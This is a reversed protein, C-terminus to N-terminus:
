AVAELHGGITKPDPSGNQMRLALVVESLSLGMERAIERPTMGQRVKDNITDAIDGGAPSNDQVVDAMPVKEIPHQHSMEGPAIQEVMSQGGLLVKLKVKETELITSLSLFVADIQQDLIMKTIDSNFQHQGIAPASAYVEQSVSNRQRARKARILGIILATLSVVPLGVSLLLLWLPITISTM